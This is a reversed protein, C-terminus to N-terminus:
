MTINSVIAIIVINQVTTSDTIWPIASLVPTRGKDFPLVSGTIGGKKSVCHMPSVWRSDAIPYIISADLLKLVKNRVVEKMKPILRRQHEVVPKADPEM